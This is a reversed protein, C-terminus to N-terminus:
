DTLEDKVHLKDLVNIQETLIDQYKGKFDIYDRKLHETADLIEKYDQKAQDLTRDADTKAKSRADDAEKEAISMIKNAESEAFKIKEEADTEAKAKIDNSTIQAVLLADKLSNEQSQYETLKREVQVIQTKLYDSERVIAEFHESVKELFDEVESRNYGNLAKGFEKGSIDFPTLM